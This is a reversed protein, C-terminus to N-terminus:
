KGKPKAKDDKPKEPEPKAEMASVGDMVCATIFDSRNTLGFKSCVKAIRDLQEETFMGAAQKRNDRHEGKAIQDLM